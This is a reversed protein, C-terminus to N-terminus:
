ISIIIKTIFSLNGKSSWDFQLEPTFPLKQGPSLHPVFLSQALVHQELWLLKHRLEEYLLPKHLADLLLKNIMMIAIGM